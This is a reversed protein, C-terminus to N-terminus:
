QFREIPGSDLLSLASKTKQLLLRLRERKDREIALRQANGLESSVGFPAYYCRLSGIILSQKLGPANEPCSSRSSFNSRKWFGGRFVIAM